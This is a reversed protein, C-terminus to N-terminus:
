PQGSQLVARIRELDAGGDPWGVVTDVRRGNDLLHFVPTQQLDLGQWSPDVVMPQMPLDPHAANWDLMEQGPWTQGIPVVLQLRGRLWAYAPSTSIAQLARRSFGCHPHVLAVVRVGEEALAARQVRAPSDLRLLPRGPLPDGGIQPLVAPRTPLRDNLANAAAFRQLAILAGRMAHHQEPGALDRALLADYLCQLRALTPPDRAYFAVLATSAFLDQLRADPLAACHRPQMAVPAAHAYAARLAALREPMPRAPDADLAQLQAHLSAAASADAAFAAMPLLPLWLLLAAMM